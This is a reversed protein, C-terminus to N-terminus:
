SFFLFIWTIQVMYGTIQLTRITWIWYHVCNWYSIKNVIDVFYRKLSGFVSNALKNYRKFNNNSELPLNPHQHLMTWHEM